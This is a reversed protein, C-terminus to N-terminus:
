SGLCCALRPSSGPDRRSYCDLRLGLVWTNGIMSALVYWWVVRGGGSWRDRNGSHQHVLAIM